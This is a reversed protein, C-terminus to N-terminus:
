EKLKWGIIAYDMPGYFLANFRATLEDDGKVRATEWDHLNLVEVPHLGRAELLFQMLLSPLPNRHTPDFYFYHSGVLVNDPNPTEFILPAGPRLARVAEDLLQVLKEIPLHEVIHFGTLAGLSNDPLKKLYELADSEGVKLGREHCEDLLVRNMDVGVAKIGEDKLLELWEGRGCGLDVVTADFSVSDSNKIYPLYLRFREKIEDRSGRFRDELAAYLADLSHNEEDGRLRQLGRENFVEAVRAEEHMLTLRNAQLSLESRARQINLYLRELQAQQQSLAEKQELLMQRQESLFERQEALSQGHEQWRADHKRDQEDLQARLAANIEEQQRKHHELAGRQRRIFSELQEQKEHLATLGQGFVESLLDLRDAIREQQRVAYDEFQEHRSLLLPLRALATIFRVPYGILPLRGLRRLTSPLSLGDVMVHREQGEPSYRLSALVDIKNIRGSRLGELYRNFGDRDPERKLIARYANHVFREDYFELLDNVRYRDEPSVQFDPQLKVRFMEREHERRAMTERISDMVANIKIEPDKIETM